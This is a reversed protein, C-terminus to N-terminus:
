QSVYTELENLQQKLNMNYVIDGNVVRTGLLLTKDIEYMVKKESFLSELEKKQENKLDLANTVTVTRRGIELKLLLIYDKLESRTLANGIRTVVDAKLEAKEFSIDILQKLDKKTM